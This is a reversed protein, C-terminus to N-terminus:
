SRYGHFLARTKYKIHEWFFPAKAHNMPHDFDISPKPIKRVSERFEFDVKVPFAHVNQDLHKGKLGKLRWDDGYYNAFYFHKM